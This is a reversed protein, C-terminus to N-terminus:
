HIDAIRCRWAGMPADVQLEDGVSAGILAHGLPSALSIREDDLFAERPHVPRVWTTEGDPYAVQVRSGLGVRGAYTSADVTIIEATALLSEWEAVEALLSEFEAVHREDRDPEVLLPRLEVMRRDHIDAIRAVILEYGEQTLQAQQRAISRELLDTKRETTTPAPASFENMSSEERTYAVLIFGAASWV